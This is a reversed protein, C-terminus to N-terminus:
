RSTPMLIIGNILKAVYDIVQIPNQMIKNVRAFLLHFHQKKGRSLRLQTDNIQTDNIQTDNIQTDNVSETIKAKRLKMMATFRSRTPM